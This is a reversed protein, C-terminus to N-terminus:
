VRWPMVKSWNTAVEGAAGDAFQEQNKLLHGHSRKNGVIELNGAWYHHLWAGHGGPLYTSLTLEPRGVAQGERVVRDSPKLPEVIVYYGVVSEQRGGYKMRCVQGVELQQENCDFMASEGAEYSARNKLNPFHEKTRTGDPAVVWKYQMRDLEFAKFEALTAARNKRAELVSDVADPENAGSGSVPSLLKVVCAVSMKSEPGPGGTTSHQVSVVQYCQEAAGFIRIYEGARPVCESQLRCVVRLYVERQNELM